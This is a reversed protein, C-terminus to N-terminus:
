HMRKAKAAMQEAVEVRSEAEELESQTKRFKVLNLAGIEEAEEIQRKYTKVKQQLTDVLDQMREHNKKEDDYLAELEKVRAELKGIQKKTAKIANSEAEEFRVELEKVQIELGKRM